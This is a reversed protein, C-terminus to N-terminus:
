ELLKVVANRLQTITTAAKVTEIRAKRTNTPKVLPDHAALVANVGDQEARSLRDLPGLEEAGWAFPLGGWGAARLETGFNPGIITAM